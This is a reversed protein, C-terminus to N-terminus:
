LSDLLCKYDNVMKDIHYKTEYVAKAGESLMNRTHSSRMLELIAGATNRAFEDKNNRDGIKAIRANVGDLFMNRLGYADSAVVPIGQMMMEIGSYPCQEYYSLIVGIEAVSYWEELQERCMFGVFTVRTAFSSAMSILHRMEMSHGMGAIVLRADPIEKLVIGFAQLLIHMGKLSTPRGAFLLIRDRESIFLKKKLSIREELPITKNNPRLGNAILAIKDVNMKYADSLLVSTDYSLCVVRDVLEYIAKEKKYYAVVPEDEKDVVGQEEARVVKMFKDADGMYAATWGLDHVTFVIKSLPHSGKIMKLLEDCPSHNVFFVNMRSDPIYLRFFRVVIEPNDVFDGLVFPPFLMKKIGEEEIIAFREVDANFILVCLEAELQKMVYLFEGLFTGIGNNQSSVYEDFVYVKKRM